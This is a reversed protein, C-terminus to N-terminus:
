KERQSSGVPINNTAVHAEPSAGLRKVFMIENLQKYVFLWTFSAKILILPLKCASLCERYNNGDVIEM